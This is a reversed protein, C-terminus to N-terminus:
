PSAGVLPLWYRSITPLAKLWLGKDTAAYLYQEHNSYVALSYIQGDLGFTQWFADKASRFYVGETSGFYATGLGDLALPTYFKSGPTALGDSWTQWHGGSDVSRYVSATQIPFSALITHSDFPSILLKSVPNDLELNGIRQFFKGSDESLYIGVKKGANGDLYYVSAVFLRQSNRQDVTIAEIDLLPYNGTSQWSFPWEASREWLSPKGTFRDYVAAYPSDPKANSVALDVVSGFSMVEAWDQGNTTEFLGSQGGAWAVDPNAPNVIIHDVSFIPYGVGGMLSPAAKVMNWATFTLNNTFKQLGRFPKEWSAGFDHSRIIAPYPQSSVAYIIQSSTPPIALAIVSAQSFIGDNKESWSSGGNDSRHIGFGSLGAFLRGHIDIDLVSAGAPLLDLSQWWTVGGDDSRYVPSQNISAPIAYVSNGFCALRHYSGIYKNTWRWTEGSDQSFFLGNMGSAYLRESHVPDIALASIDYDHYNNLAMWSQGGNISKKLILGRFQYNALYVTDPQNLSISILSISHVCGLETTEWDAGGNLSRQFSYLNEFPESCVGTGPASEGATYILDSTVVAFAEGLPSIPQWHYGGDTSRLLGGPGGAYIVDSHVPDIGLHKVPGDSNMFIFRFEWTEGGDGSFFVRAGQPSDVLSYLIDADVKSTVISLVSGGPLFPSPIEIWPNSGAAVAVWQVPSILCLCCAVLLSLPIISKM